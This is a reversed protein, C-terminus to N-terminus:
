WANKKTIRANTLKKKNLQKHSKYNPASNNNNDIYLSSPSFDLGISNSLRIGQEISQEREFSISCYYEGCANRSVTM